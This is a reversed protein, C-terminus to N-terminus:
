SSIDQEMDTAAPASEPNGVPITLTFTNLPSDDEEVKLSGGLVSALSRALSVM